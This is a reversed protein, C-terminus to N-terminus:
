HTRALRLGLYGDRSDPTDRIRSASRCYRARDDWSGGRRVRSAGSSPGTPDTVIGSPYDGYWDQVWEWVNGHMDYLGWANTRKGAVPHTRCGNDVLRQIYKSGDKVENWIALADIVRNGSNNGYWAMADLDGAYPGTTGARAAYEWEAETPLRFGGGSVLGNLRQIFEQSDNWSVSEVPCTSGCAKFHSPNNGMVAQWLGQTVETEGMWFGRSIRVRHQPSERDAWRGPENEPSGRLYEGAPIYVMNFTVGKVTVARKEGARLAAPTVPQPAPPQAPADVRTQILSVALIKDEGSGVEIWERYMEHGVATVEIHYAGPDLEIGPTYPPRINLIRVQAGAPTTDVKLRASRPRVPNLLANVSTMRGSSITIRQRYPEYGDKGVEVMYTGPALAHGDIPVTGINNGGLRVWAGSINSTVKLTTQEAPPTTIVGSSALQFVFDGKDLDPDRIKGYVPTQGTQYHLVQEHLFMGLETGTVYGDKNLDAAGELGWVLSPAFVSRAPVPQDADGASIFQRVPRATAASIHPPVTPRERAAFITGSFCSDFLFLAHRAEIRRAWTMVQDMDLAKQIFGREDYRPDPADVPVLYGRRGERRTHGHGAFFFLLRNDADLGYRNIFNQFALRLESATPDTVVEVTFGHQVLAAQVEAIESPVTSLSPWGATYRSAGILLAYSGKYLGIQRGQNDRIAVLGRGASFAQDPLSFPILMALVLLALLGATFLPRLAPVHKM